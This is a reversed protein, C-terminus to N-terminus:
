VRAGDPFVGLVLHPPRHTTPKTEVRHQGRNSDHFANAGPAEQVRAWTQNRSVSSRARFFILRLSRRTAGTTPTRPQM